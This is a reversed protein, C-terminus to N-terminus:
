RRGSVWSLADDIWNAAAALRDHPIKDEDGEDLAKSYALSAARYETAAKILNDIDPPLKKTNKLARISDCTESTADWDEAMHLAAAEVGATFSLDKERDIAELIPGISDCYDTASVYDAVNQLRGDLLDVETELLDAREEHTLDNVDTM